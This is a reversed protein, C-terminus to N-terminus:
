QPPPTCSKEKCDLCKLPFVGFPLEALEPECVPCYPVPSLFSKGDEVAQMNWRLNKKM